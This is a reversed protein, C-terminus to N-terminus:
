KSVLIIRKNTTDVDYASHVWSGAADELTSYNYKYNLGKRTGPDNTVFESGNYGTIVLMHYIPGPQRFNPNELLKGSAPLIVLKGDALAQKITKETM